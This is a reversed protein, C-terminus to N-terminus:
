FRSHLWEMGSPEEDLCRSLSVRAPSPASAGADDPRSRAARPGHEQCNAIPKLGGDRRVLDMLAHAWKQSSDALGVAGAERFLSTFFLSPSGTSWWWEVLCLLQNPGDIMPAVNPQSRVRTM